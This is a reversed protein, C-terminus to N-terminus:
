DYKQVLSNINLLGLALRRLELNQLVSPSDLNFQSAGIM